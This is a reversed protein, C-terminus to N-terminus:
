DNSGLHVYIKAVKGEGLCVPGLFDNSAVHAAILHGSQTGSSPGTTGAAHRVQLSGKSRGPYQEKHRRYIETWSLQLEEKLRIILDDEDSTFKSQRSSNRTQPASHNAGRQVKKNRKPKLGCHTTCLNWDFQLQFTAMGDVMIRKLLANELPWEEFEAVKSVDDADNETSTSGPPSPLAGTPSEVIRRERPPQVSGAHKETWCHVNRPTQGSLASSPTDDSRVTSGHRHGSTGFYPLNNGPWEEPSHQGSTEIDVHRRKEEAETALSPHSAASDLECGYLAGGFTELFCISQSTGSAGPVETLAGANVRHCTTLAPDIPCSTCGYDHSVNSEHFPRSVAPATPSAIPSAHCLGNTSSALCQANVVDGECTQKRPSALLCLGNDERTGNGAPLFEVAETANNAEMWDTPAKWPLKGPSSRGKPQERKSSEILHELPPLANDSESVDLDISPRRDRGSTVRLSLDTDTSIRPAKNSSLGSVAVIPLNPQVAGADDYTGRTDSLSMPRESGSVRRSVARRRGNLAFQPTWPVQYDLNVPAM